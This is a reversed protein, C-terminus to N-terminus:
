GTGSMPRDGEILPVLPELAKRMFDRFIRVRATLRLDVHSLIWLGCGSEAVMDPIRRINPETDGVVCPLQAIGIGQRAVELMTEVNSVRYKVQINASNNSIWPPISKGDGIWTVVPVAHKGDRLQQRFEDSGYINFAVTALRDAVLNPPPDDTIRLAIDSDGYALDLVENTAFLQLQIDPYKRSFAKLPSGILHQFCLPPATIRILGSLSKDAGDVKRRLIRVSEAMDNASRLLNEGDSTIAWGTPERDFLRTGLVAEFASVRRSVTSHNVGLQAAAATVSGADIVALFYRIDDWNIEHL